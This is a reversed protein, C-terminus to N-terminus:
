CHCAILGRLGAAEGILATQGAFQESGCRVLATLVVLAICLGIVKYFGKGTIYAIFKSEKKNLKDDKEM